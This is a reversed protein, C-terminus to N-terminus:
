GELECDAPGDGRPECGAASVRWGARTQDLYALTGDAFTVAAGTGWVQAGGARGGKLDLSTVAKPCPEKEEQELAQATAATLTACAKAGQQAAVARYLEQAARRADREDAARGCGTLGALLCATM